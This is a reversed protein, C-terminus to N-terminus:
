PADGEIPEAGAERMIRRVDEAAAELRARGTARLVISTGLAGGRYYPYSGIQVEAHADQM